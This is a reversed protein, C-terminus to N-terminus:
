YRYTNPLYWVALSSIKTRKKLNFYIIKKFNLYLNINHLWYCMIEIMVNKYYINYSAFIILDIVVNQWLIMFIIM